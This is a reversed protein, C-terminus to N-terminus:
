LVWGLVTCVMLIKGQQFPTFTGNLYMKEKMIVDAKKGLHTHLIHVHVYGLTLVQM